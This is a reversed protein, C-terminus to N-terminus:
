KRREKKRYFYQAVYYGIGGGVISGFLVIIWNEM